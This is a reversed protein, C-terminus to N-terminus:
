KKKLMKVNDNNKLLSLIEVEKQKIANITLNFHSALDEDNYNEQYKLLILSLDEPALNSLVQMMNSSFLTKDLSKYPNVPDALYDIRLKEKRTGKDGSFKADNLSLSNNQKKYKKLYIRFYGKITLDMYKIIQGYINLNTRNIVM